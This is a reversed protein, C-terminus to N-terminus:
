IIFIFIHRRCCNPHQSLSSTTLQSHSSLKSIRSRLTLLTHALPHPEQRKEHGDARNRGWVESGEPSHRVVLHFWVVSASVCLYLNVTKTVGVITSAWPRYASSMTAFCLCLKIGWSSTSCSTTEAWLNQCVCKIPAIWRRWCFCSFHPAIYPFSLYTDIVTLIADAHHFATDIWWLM